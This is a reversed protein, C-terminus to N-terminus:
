PPALARALAAAEAVNEINSCADLLRVTADRGLVPECLGIFKGKLEDDTMPRAASGICHEVACAITSGDQLVVEVRAANGALTADAHVEMRDQLATMAPDSFSAAELADLGASGRLLATAAWYYLSTRAQYADNARKGSLTVATPTAHIHIRHLTAAAYRPDQQLELCADLIPHIVIGCPYPKFMNSLIEYREGLAGALADLDPREAFLGLYGMDAELSAKTCSLGGAALLAARLGVQGAHAPILPICMTGHLSRFGSAQAAAIAIASKMQPPALGLLKACAAAAGIGGAVGTQMWAVPGTAPPVSIARSVRCVVEVGLAFATLFGAGSVPTRECLALLASVVPGSPHVIAQAHTDDFAYASCALGNLLAAHLADTRERRGALTARPPGAFEALAAHTQGVVPHPAGGVMCGVINVLSRRAAHRVAAPLDGHVTSQLYHVLSDTPGDHALAIPAPAMM